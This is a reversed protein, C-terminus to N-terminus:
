PMVEMTAPHLAKGRLANVAAFVEAADADEVPYHGAGHVPSTYGLQNPCDSVEIRVKGKASVAVRVFKADRVDRVVNANLKVSM